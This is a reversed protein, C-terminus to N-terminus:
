FRPLMKSCGYVSCLFFLTETLKGNVDFLYMHKKGKRVSQVGSGSLVFTGQYNYYMLRKVTIGTEIFQSFILPYISVIINHFMRKM